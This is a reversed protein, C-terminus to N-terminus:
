ALHPKVMETSNKWSLSNVSCRYELEIHGSCGSRRRRARIRRSEIPKAVHIQYGASLARVRDEARAYATLAVAPVWTGHEREWRKNFFTCLNDQGSLWVMVPASDALLHFLRESEQLAEASRQRETIDRAIKSAGIIKGTSEKIPSITLSIVLPSGDKRVRTTVYHEIREGLRLRKLIEQEEGHREPPILVTIPRGIIEDAIYGFTREAGKNWSTIVGELTKGIIADDSSEVIAALAMEALSCQTIRSDPSMAQTFCRRLPTRWKRAARKM